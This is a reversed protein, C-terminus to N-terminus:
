RPHLDLAYHMNSFINDSNKPSSAEKVYNYSSHGDVKFSAKVIVRSIYVPLLDSGDLSPWYIDAHGRSIVALYM